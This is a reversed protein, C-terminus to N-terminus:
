SSSIAIATEFPLVCAEIGAASCRLGTLPVAINDQMYAPINTVPRLRFRWTNKMARHLLEILLADRDVTYQKWAYQLVDFASCSSGAM